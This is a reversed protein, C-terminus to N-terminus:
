SRVHPAGSNMLSLRDPSDIANAACAVGIAARRFRRKTYAPASVPSEGPARIHHVRVAGGNEVHLREGAALFWLLEDSHRLEVFQPLYVAECRGRTEPM